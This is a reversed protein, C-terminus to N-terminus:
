LWILDRVAKEAREPEARTDRVVLRILHDTVGGSANVEEAAMALGNLVENASGQGLGQLPLFVGVNIVPLPTPTALPTPEPSAPEQSVPPKNCGAFLILLATWLAVFFRNM